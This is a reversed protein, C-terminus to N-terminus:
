RIFEDINPIGYIYTDVFENITMVDIDRNKIENVLNTFDTFSFGNTYSNTETGNLHHCYLIVYGKNTVLNDLYEQWEELTKHTMNERTLRYPNVTGYYDSYKLGAARCYFEDLLKNETGVNTGGARIIGYVPFGNEGIITPIQIFKENMLEFTQNESTLTTSSHAVIEGGNNYCEHAMNWNDTVKNPIVALYSKLGQNYLYQVGQLCDLNYDDFGICVVARNLKNIHKAQGLTMSAYLRNTTNLTFSNNKESQKNYLTKIIGNAYLEFILKETIRKDRNSTFFAKTVGSPIIIEHYDNEDFQMTEVINNNNNYLIVSVANGIGRGKYLFTDGENVDITIYGSAYNNANIYTGDPKYYGNLKSNTYPIAGIMNKIITNYEIISKNINNINNYTWGLIDNMKYIELELNDTVRIDRHATFLIKNVGEPVVVEHYASSNWQPPTGIINDSSDYMILAVGSGGGEGRYLFKDGETVDVIVSGSAFNDSICYTGNPKYYGNQPEDTYSIAGTMLIGNKNITVQKSMNRTFEKETNLNNEIVNEKDYLSGIINTFKYIEFILKNSTTTDYNSAFIVKYVGSPITIEHYVNANYQEGDIFDGNSDYYLVSAANAIGNGRYLFRDGESVNLECYGTKYRNVNNFTGDEIKYYGHNKYTFPIAGIMMINENLNNVQTRISNGASNYVVGDSGTRIDILESDSQANSVIINDIRPNFNLNNNKEIKNIINNYKNLM